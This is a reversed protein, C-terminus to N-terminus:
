VRFGSDQVRLGMDQVRFEFGSGQVRVRCEFGWVEFGSTSDYTSDTNAIPTVSKANSSL